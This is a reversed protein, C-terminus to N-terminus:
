SGNPIKRVKHASDGVLLMRGFFWKKFVVEHIATLTSSGDVRKAHVQHFTLTETIQLNEYKKVFEEADEKSYRPIDKGYKAEPLRVFVFWYCRGKPGSVVLCSVGTGTTFSQDSSPWGEVDQAAGFHCQYYCPVEDEEKPEFLSPDVTNAIRRMESRVKSHIGDAGLVIDGSYSHGGTTTVRVSGELPEIVDVRKKVHIRDKNKVQSYLM